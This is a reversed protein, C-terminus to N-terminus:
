GNGQAERHGVLSYRESRILLISEHLVTRLGARRGQYGPRWNNSVRYEM